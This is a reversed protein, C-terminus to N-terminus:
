LVDQGEVPINSILPDDALSTVPFTGILTAIFSFLLTRM